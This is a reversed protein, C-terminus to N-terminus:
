CVATAEAPKNKEPTALMRLTESTPQWHELSHDLADRVPRLHIGAAQLKTTDLICNSRPTKAACRYFEEDDKWFAFSRSPKSIRIIRDVVERTTVSGPNVVNYIGYASHRDKLDLCARVFDGRHSLSNVADYVKPYSKIKTLFNKPHDFEDFPIRLRWVYCQDTGRLAEEGLAKTGSYFSCPPSRFSFNPEDTETFGGFLGPSGAYLQRLKPENLDHEIRSDGNNGVNIKAGSYICGSSVHGWPTNTMLCVRGVTQPFLANGQVTESRAIECGDVNPRGTYGAANIIFEPKTKRVYDFLVDFRTYDLSKRSLPLCAASRRQLERAFAQGIFGSAGLLLIM